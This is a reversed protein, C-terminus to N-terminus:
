NKISRDNLMEFIQIKLQDAPMIGVFRCGYLKKNEDSAKEIRVIEIVSQFKEKTWLSVTTDYFTNLELKEESEFALGDKSLNVAEVEFEEQKLNTVDKNNRVSNLKIKVDIIMRNAKRREQTM